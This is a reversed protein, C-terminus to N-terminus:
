DTHQRRRQYLRRMKERSGCTSMSCWRRRGSANLFLWGCNRGPCRTVRELRDPDQLLAIADAAVAYRSRRPDEPWWDLQFCGDGAVLSAQIVAERYDRMLLEVDGPAPEQHRSVAAFLRYVADRLARARDLEAMSTTPVADGLLGVRLGWRALMEETQLVDTRDADVYEDRPSWDVSNAFDLCLTGGWLPVTEPTRSMWLVKGSSIQL